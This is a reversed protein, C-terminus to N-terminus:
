LNECSKIIFNLRESLKKFPVTVTKFHNKYNKELIKHIKISQNFNEYRVFDKKYYKKIPKILFVIDYNFNILKKELNFNRSGIFELYSTIDLLSRDFFVKDYKRQIISNKYQEERIKWLRNSFKSPNKNFINQNYKEKYIEILDRSIEDYCFYGLNKLSNIITTKGSGPGGSIVIKITGIM